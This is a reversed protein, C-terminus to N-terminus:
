EGSKEKDDAKGSAANKAAQAAFAFGSIGKRPKNILTPDIFPALSLTEQKMGEISFSARSGSMADNSGTAESIYRIKNNRKTVYIVHDFYRAFTKNTNESGAVPVVQKRKDEQEVMEEHSVVVLHGRAAQIYSGAKENVMKLWHWDDWEFKCDEPEKGKYATRYRQWMCSIRFQTWSDFIYVRQPDRANLHETTLPKKNAKCLMCDVKAHTNCITVEGGRLIKLASEAFIPYDQTDPFQVLDVRAKWESPMQLLTKVGDEADNYTVNFFEALTGALASKGMKAPGYILIKQFAQGNYENLNM